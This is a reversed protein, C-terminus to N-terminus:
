GGVQPFLAFYATTLFYNVTFLLLFTMVVTENVAQGVGKPGGSANLGKYSGVVGAIIGFVLGKVLSSWLDPITALTTRDGDGVDEALARAVVDQLESRTAGDM